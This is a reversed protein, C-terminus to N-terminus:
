DTRIHYKLEVRQTESARTHISFHESLKYNIIATYTNSFLGMSVGVYLDPNLYHGLRIASDEIKDFDEVEFEDIGLQESLWSLKGLGYSFAATTVVNGEGGESDSLSKGTILYALAESEPLSPESYIRTKPSKLLGTVSLVATVDDEASKRIAEINLWPNDSPGTFIFEGIRITLDQGYSRYTANILEARGTVSQKDQKETYHLKGALHTDIGFGKFHTNDGFQIEIKTELHLPQSEEKKLKKTSIIVEDKTPSIAQDPLTQIEVNAKDIKIIGDVKTINDFKNIKFRPTIVIEAEPLQALKFQEGTIDLQLPYNHKALLTIYGQALLQGEGSELEANVLLQDPNNKNNDLKFQINRFTTGLKAIKLQGNQIAATGIIIPTKNNGSIELNANFLGQLHDVEDVLKDILTLNEIHAKIVGSLNRIGEQNAKGANIHATIFDQNGLGLNIESDLQDQIYNLQIKPAKLPIKHHIEDDSLFLMGESISAKLKATPNNKETSFQMQASVLGTLEIGDPLWIKSNALKWDILKIDGNLQSQTSGKTQFCFRSSSQILCSHPLDIFVSKKDPTLTLPIDAQLQWKELQSHNIDLQSINALWNNGDWNGTTIFDLNISPSSINLDIQHDSQHGIGQVRIHDIHNDDLQITDATFILKSHQKTAHFYHSQLSFQAVKYGSFSLDNGHLNGKIIPKKLSGNILTNGEIRGALTPWASTLNPANIKLELDSNKEGLVGKAKLTNQGALINFHQIDLQQNTINMKGEAKLPQQHIEGVLQNIDLAINYKDNTVSGQSQANFDLKGSIDSSFDSLNIQKAKLDFNFSLDQQWSLQGNFNLQGHAPKLLLKNINISQQDGTGSLEMVFSPNKKASITTNLQAKYQQLTGKISFEGQESSIQPPSALPWQLSQWQAQLDFEPQKNSLSVFGTQSSEIAGTIQSNFNLKQKDGNIDLHGKLSSNNPLYSWELDASLPFNQQIKVHAHLTVKVSPTDIKLSSVTLNNQILATSATIQNIKNSQNDNLWNIQNITLQDITIDIPIQPIETSKSNNEDSSPMGEIKINNILLSSIYLHGKLLELLQWQMHFEDISILFHPDGQYHIKKLSLHDFLTGDIETVKIQNVNSLATRLVWRTGSETALLILLSIVILSIFLTISKLLTVIKFAGGDIM